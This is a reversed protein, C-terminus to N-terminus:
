SQPWLAELRKFDDPTDIDVSEHESMIYAVSGSSPFERKAMFASLPFIYIAGNPYYAPELSQRNAHALRVEFLSHLCGEADRRFARFPTKHMEEVSICQWSQWERMTRLAEQIHFATRLPSTPQLYVIIPDDQVIGSDLGSIFDVMVDAATAADSAANDARRFAVVGNREALDLIERDDSSVYIKDIAAVQRAADITHSLLPKKGVVRLNKRPM